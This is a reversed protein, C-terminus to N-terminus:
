KSKDISVPSKTGRPAHPKGAPRALYQEVEAEAVFYYRGLRVAKIQTRAILAHVRQRTIGLRAAVESIPLLSDLEMIVSDHESLGQQTLRLVIEM